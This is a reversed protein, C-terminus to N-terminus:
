LMELEGGFWGIVVRVVTRVLEVVAASGVQVIRRDVYGAAEADAWVLVNSLMRKGFHLHTEGASNQM